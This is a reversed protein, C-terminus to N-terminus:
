TVPRVSSHPGCATRPVYVASGRSLCGKKVVKDYIIRRPSIRPERSSLSISRLIIQYKRWKKQLKLIMDKKLLVAQM